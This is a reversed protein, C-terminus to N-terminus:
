CPQLPPLLVYAAVAADRLVAAARVARDLAQAGAKLVRLTRRTLTHSSGGAGSATGAWSNRQVSTLLLLVGQRTCVAAVGARDVTPVAAVGAFLSLLLVVVCCCAGSSGDSTSGAKLVRLTRRTLTHSSGGARSATGFTTFRQCRRGAAARTVWTLCRPILPGAHTAGSPLHLCRCYAFVIVLAHNPAHLLYCSPCPLPLTSTNCRHVCAPV